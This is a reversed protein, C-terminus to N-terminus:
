NNFRRLAEEASIEVPNGDTDAVIVPEGLKAKRELMRKQALVIGNYIRDFLNIEEQESM